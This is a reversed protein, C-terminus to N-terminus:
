MLESLYICKFMLKSDTLLLIGHSLVFVLSFFMQYAYSYMSRSNFTHM